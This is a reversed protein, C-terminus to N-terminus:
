KLHLFNGGLPFLSVRYHDFLKGQIDTPASGVAVILADNKAGFASVKANVVTRGKRADKLPYM